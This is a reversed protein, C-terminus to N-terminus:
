EPSFKNEIRLLALVPLVIIVEVVHFQYLRLNLYEIFLAVSFNLFQFVIHILLVM